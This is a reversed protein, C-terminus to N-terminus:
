QPTKFELRNTKATLQLYADALTPNVEIGHVPREGVVRLRVCSDNPTVRSVLMSEVYRSVADPEVCIEYVKGLACARLAEVTGCFLVRGQHLVIVTQAINEVDEPIHTSFLTLKTHQTVVRLVRERESIDLGRALEDLLLLRPTGLLAQAIGMLRMQGGSLKRCPQDVLAELNLASIVADVNGNRLRALYTLFKRPTLGEPLEFDQPLYGIQTRLQRQHRAYSLGKFIIEGSDPQTLTALTRLLTSKGSGNAGLLAVVGNDLEFDVNSLAIQSGYTKSLSRVKLTM